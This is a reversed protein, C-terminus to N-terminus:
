FGLTYFPDFLADLDVDVTAIVDTVPNSIPPSCNGDAGLASLATFSEPAATSDAIYAIGSEVFAFEMGLLPRQDKFLTGGCGAEKFWGNGQVQTPSLFGDDTVLVIFTRLTGLVDTQVVVYKETFVPGPDVHLLTGVLAGTGDRVVLPGPEGGPPPTECGPESAHSGKCHFAMAPSALSMALAAALALAAHRLM